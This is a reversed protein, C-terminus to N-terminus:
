QREGKEKIIWDIDREIAEDIAINSATAKGKISNLWEQNSLMQKRYREREADRIESLLKNIRSNRRAPVEAKALEDFYNGPTGYLLYSANDELAQEIDRGDNLAKQEISAYWEPTNRISQKITEIKNDIVNNEFCLSFVSKTLFQRNLDYLNCPSYILMVIDTSLLERLLDVQGVNNHIPDNFITNNYYWYHHSDFMKDLPLNYQWEWFYSDGVILWKPTTATTDDDIGVNTYYNMNSEIPWLLNMVKELDDDPVRTEAIYPESYTLNHLNLGSLNEMYRVLTDAAYCASLNSWHFSSKLYLPYSVSDKIGLYHDSLNLYNIGLSDFIPPFYEVALVGSPREYNRGEPMYEEMVMDKGPTICVFLSVGYQKLVEQLQFLMIASAEMRKVVEENSSGYDYVFQRDRHKIMFDNFIWNDRGVHITKNQSIRFLSWSLQNYCRVMPERFGINESLYQEEQAQFNGNMFSKLTLIPKATTETVGNLPKMKFLKSHQQVAPLVLLVFTLAILVIHLVKHKM